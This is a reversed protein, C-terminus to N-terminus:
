VSGNDRRYQSPTTGVYKKFTRYFHPTSDFGSLEAVAAVPYDTNRLLEKAKFTRKKNLYVTFNMGTVDKFVRSFHATSVHAMKALLEQSLNGHINKEMYAFIENLWYRRFRDDVYSDKFFEVSWRTLSLLIQHTILIAAHLAGTKMEKLEKDMEVLYSNMTQQQSEQLTMKYHKHKKIKEVIFLYSFDEEVSLTQIFAPSFFIVSSTVLDEENPVAHHITDNPILFLDGKNMEYLTNDIFFSGKGKHIYVIEHFEHMHTPLEHQPQKRSKYVFSFPFLSNNKNFTKM